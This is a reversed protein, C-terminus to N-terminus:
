VNEVIDDIFDFLHEEDAEEGGLRQVFFDKVHKMDDFSSDKM